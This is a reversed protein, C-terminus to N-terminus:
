LEEDIPQATIVDGSSNADPQPTPLEGFALHAVVVTAGQLQSAAPEVEMGPLAGDIIGVLRYEERRSAMPDDGSPFQFALQVLTDVSQSAEGRLKAATIRESEFPLRDQSIDLPVFALLASEGARMDGLWAGDYRVRNKSDFFRRVLVADRLSLQSRNELQRQGRSSEGFRLPGDLKFVQESHILNTSASSVALGNLQTESKREFSVSYQWETQDSNNAPFPLALATSDEPFTVDYTTSLSSYFATFRTLIGQPYNGHLELLAVETQSRVFGIDLQAQKVVAWTGLLAILPVAFWAWEVREIVHFVLWNLPVLVLLYVGLCALVFGAGPVKVGAALLLWERATEAVPSFDDWAGLGGPRDVKLQSYEQMQGFQDSTTSNSIETNASALADRAFLRLPTTFHADLRKQPFENWNANLGGYPGESFVRGPRRLLGSNLFGDFGPWNILDRDALQVASVVISGNGVTREIFLNAGGALEASKEHPKLEIASLPKLPALPPIDAGQSRKGWYTSWSDLQKNTVKRPGTDEAPLHPALFSGRLSALSDPGNIILRGGWHIWDVLALQQEATLRSPDVEDWLVYAINTWTLPNEALPITKTANVLAVQYHPASSQEYDEEWPARVTNSVKLFAYQDPEKALVVITYQYAPLRVLKLQTRYAEAGSDVDTLKASLYDGTTQQPIFLDAEVQKARGKALAISRTTQLGFHTHELAVPRRSADVTEITLSGVFDAYNAKMSQATSGWHGPKVLLVPGDEALEGVEQGLRPALPGIELPPKKEKEIAPKKTEPESSQESETAFDELIPDEEAALSIFPFVALAFAVLGCQVALNNLFKPLGVM